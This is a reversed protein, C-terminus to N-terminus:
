IQVINKIDKIKEESMGEEKIYNFGYKDILEDVSLASQILNSDKESNGVYYLKLLTINLGDSKANRKQKELTAKKTTTKYKPKKVYEHFKGYTCDRSSFCYQSVEAPCLCLNEDFYYLDDAQKDSLASKNSVFVFLSLNLYYEMMDLVDESRKNRHFFGNLFNSYDDTHFFLPINFMVIQEQSKTLNKRGEVLKFFNFMVGKVTKELDSVM